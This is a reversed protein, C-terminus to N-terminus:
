ANEGGGGLDEYSIGEGQETELWIKCAIESRNKPVADQKEIQYVFYNAVM